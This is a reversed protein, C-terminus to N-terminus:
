AFLCAKAEQEAAERAGERILPLIRTNEGLRRLAAVRETPDPIRDKAELRMKRLLETYESWERGFHTELDRRLRASLAPGAGGTTIAVLLDGRRVTAMTVFDGNDSDSQGGMAPASQNLLIGRERAVAAITDNVEPADTAAICLFADNLHSPSFLSPIHEIVGENVLEQLTPSIVPAIVTIHAACELLAQVKRTGVSGGGVV